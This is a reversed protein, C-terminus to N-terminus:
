KLDFGKLSEIVIYEIWSNMKEGLERGQECAYGFCGSKERVLVQPSCRTTVLYIGDFCNPEKPCSPVTVEKFYPFYKEPPISDNYKEQTGCYNRNKDWIHFKRMTM